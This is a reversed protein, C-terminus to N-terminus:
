SNESSYHLTHTHTHLSQSTQKSGLLSSTSSHVLFSVFVQQQCERETEKM